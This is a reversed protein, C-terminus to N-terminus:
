GGLLYAALGVPALLAAAEVAYWVWLRKGQRLRDIWCEARDILDDTLTTV